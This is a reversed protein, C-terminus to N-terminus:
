SLYQHAFTYQNGAARSEDTRVQACPKQGAPMLNQTDIIKKGAAPSVYVPGQIVSIELHQPMVNGKREVDLDIFDIVQSTGGGRHVVLEIRNLGRFRRHM